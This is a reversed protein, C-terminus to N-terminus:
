LSACAPPVSKLNGCYIKETRFLEKLIHVIKDKETETIKEEAEVNGATNRITMGDDHDANTHSCLHSELNHDSFSASTSLCDTSGNPISEPSDTAANKSESM